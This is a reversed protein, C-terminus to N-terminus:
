DVMMRGSHRASARVGRSALLVEALFAALAGLTCLIGSGFLGFLLSAATRDRVISFFLALVTGCTCAGSIAALIVALDLVRTRRRLYTLRLSIEHRKSESGDPQDLIANVKDSIRALRTTFTGLLTAVASLLFIPSLSLQIIHVIGDYSTPDQPIM